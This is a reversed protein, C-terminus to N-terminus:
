FGAPVRLQDLLADAIDPKAIPAGVIVDQRTEYLTAVRLLIWQKAREPVAAGEPSGDDSYGCRWTVRVAGTDGRAIPWIEGYAPEVFPVMPHAIARWLDSAITQEVGDQDTYKISVVEILPPYPLRIRGSAGPFQDLNLRLTQPRLARGLWGDKGDVEATAAEILREVYADDPHSEPSGSVDLRLHAQAEALTVAVVSPATVVEIYGKVDPM